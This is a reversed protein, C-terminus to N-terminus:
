ANTLQSLKVQQSQKAMEMFSGHFYHCLSGERFTRLDRAMNAPFAIDLSFPDRKLETTVQQRTTVFFSSKAGNVSM